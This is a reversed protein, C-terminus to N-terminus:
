QHSDSKYNLWLANRFTAEAQLNISSNGIFTRLGHWSDWAGGSRGNYSVKSEIRDMYVSYTFLNPRVTKCVYKGTAGDSVRKIDGTKMVSRVSQLAKAGGLAKEAQKLIRSPSQALGSISLAAICILIFSYKYFNM